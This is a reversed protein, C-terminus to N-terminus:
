AADVRGRMVRPAAFSPLLGERMMVRRLPSLRQALWLGVGRLAQAPLLDSLLTRNLADVGATRSWVDLRRASDYAKLTAEGGIDEGRKKAKGVVEALSAVDRLGLNLGQAGIPPFVHAAEGVVAIRSKAFTLATMGSLPYIQVPGDVEIKGLISHSRRELVSALATPELKSLREAEDPAEVLVISSRNGPMPVLVFPGNRGHFETSIDEHPAEHKLITVLAAQPYRWERIPLGAAARAKSQRGDAGVVLRAKVAARGEISVIVEDASPTIESAAGDILTLGPEKRTAELLAHNLDMNAINYGFAPLEIERAEFAVEPARILRGTDDVLRMVALPATKDAIAAWLGLRELMTVSGGLLATTRGDSWRGLPAVLAVDLGERAMLIGAMLGSPGGGVVVADFRATNPDLEPRM